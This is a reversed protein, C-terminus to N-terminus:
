YDTLNLSFLANQVPQAGHLCLLDFAVLSLAFSVDWLDISLAVRGYPCVHDICVGIAFIRVRAPM